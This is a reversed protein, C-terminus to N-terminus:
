EAIGLAKAAALVIVERPATMAAREFEWEEPWQKREAMIGAVDLRFNFWRGGDAALWKVMKDKDEASTFPDPADAWAEDQSHRLTTVLVGNPDILCYRLMDNYHEREVKYGMAQALRERIVLKEQETM